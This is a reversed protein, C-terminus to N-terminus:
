PIPTPLSTHPIRKFLLVLKDHWSRDVQTGTEKVVGVCAYGYALPYKLGSSMSDHVDALHPFQGRYVLM